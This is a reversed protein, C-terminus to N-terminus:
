LLAREKLELYREVLAPSLQGAPVDLGLVGGRRLAEFSQRRAALLEEAAAWEYARASRDIPADRAAILAPDEMAVVLVLHRGSLWLAQTVLDRSASPDLIDTLVVVLSRRTVRRALQGFAEAFDPEVFQARVGYLAESLRNVQTPGRQPSLFSDVQDTFAILGVRDGQQQALWGLLLAANVAHDLKTMVGSRATMLRGCDLLIMVQQGRESELEVTVPTDRRATAKWNIRRPDDGVIYDRLGAFATAAGPPRSRRQGPRHPMGRRLTLQYQRIALVDPYVAARQSAPLRVQRFWWGHRRWARVDLPGFDFAGRQPPQIGYAAIWEGRGDFRGRVERRAPRLAAPVHDALAAELGAAGPHRIGVLVEQAAGLSLPNPIDRSAEWGKRAPLTAADRVALAVLVMHYALAPLWLLPGLQALAILIGGAGLAVLLRPRPM